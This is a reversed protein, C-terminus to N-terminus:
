KTNEALQITQNKIKNQALANEFTIQQALWNTYNSEEDVIVTGFMAYHGTGCLEACLIEYEGTKTPTIWYYTILGPVMDMKARFEPVYFNHIVDISRLLFEVPKDIQLHLEADQVMLDDKGNPDNLDLGYPNEDSINHISTTGLIGDEGALRYNWGWQYGLIEVKVAGKPVKIYDNWVLLGPTLLVVVAIASVLALIFELKKDEPKYEAKRNKQHRYKWVCYVMFGGLALFVFGTVWFTILIANDISNWNSTLPTFWWPSWIHFLLTGVVVAFLLYVVYTTKM